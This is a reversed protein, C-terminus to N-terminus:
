AGRHADHAVTDESAIWDRQAIEAESAIRAACTLAVQGCGRHYEQIKKWGRPKTLEMARAHSECAAAEGRCQIIAKEYAHWAADRMKREVFREIRGRVRDVENQSAMVSVGFFFSVKPTFTVMDPGLHPRLVPRREDKEVQEVKPEAARALQAKLDEITKAVARPSSSIIWSITACHPACAACWGAHGHSELPDAPFHDGCGHCAEMPESM